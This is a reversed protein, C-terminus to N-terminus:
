NNVDSDPDDDRDPGYYGIFDYQEDGKMLFGGKDACEYKCGAKVMKEIYAKVESDTM